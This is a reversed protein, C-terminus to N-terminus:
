LSLDGKTHLNCSRSLLGAENYFPDLTSFVEKFYKEPDVGMVFCSRDFESRSVFDMEDYNEKECTDVLYRGYSILGENDLSKM